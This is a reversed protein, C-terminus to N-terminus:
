MGLEIRAREAIEDMEQLRAIRIEEAKMMALVSIVGTDADDFSDEVVATFKPTEKRMSAMKPGIKAVRFAFLEADKMKEVLSVAHFLKVESGFSYAFDFTFDDNDNTYSTVPLDKQLFDWVGASRFRESMESHIWKRGVTRSSKERERLEIKPAEVLKVALERLEREPDSAVCNQMTSLQVTNSYSEMMEHLLLARSQVDKLRAHVDRGLAELMKVDISPDLCMARRWDKTFHVGAFGGGDGGTETMVLGINVFEERVANPVYRLLFYELKRLEAM